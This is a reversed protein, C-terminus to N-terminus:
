TKVRLDEILEEQSKHVALYNPGKFDEHEYEYERFLVGEKVVKGVEFDFYRFMEYFDKLLFGTEINVQGYEFQIAAIREGEIMHEFGQLVTDEMGEVDIKLLGIEDIENEECWTDGTKTKVMRQSVIETTKYFQLLFEIFRSSAYPKTKMYNFPITIGDNSSLCECYVHTYDEIRTAFLVDYNERVAEIAHVTRSRAAVMAAWDGHFAGVDVFSADTHEICKVVVNEEGNLRFDYLVSM